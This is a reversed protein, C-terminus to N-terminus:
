PVTPVAALQNPQAGMKVNKGDTCKEILFSAMTSVAKKLRTDEPYLTSLTLLEPLAEVTIGMADFEDLLAKIAPKAVADIEAREEKVLSGLDGLARLIIIHYVTRANHADMWRGNPAQGPAVGVRFKHLAAKLFREDRSHRYADALLSNTFANYNFNPSCKQKM